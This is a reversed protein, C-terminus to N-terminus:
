IKSHEATKIHEALKGFNFYFMGEKSCSELDSLRITKRFANEVLVKRVSFLVTLSMMININSHLIVFSWLKLIFKYVEEKSVYSTTSHLM